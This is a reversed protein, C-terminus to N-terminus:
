RNFCLDVRLHQLTGAMFDCLQAQQSNWTLMYDPPRYHVLVLASKTHISKDQTKRMCWRGTSTPRIESEREHKRRGKKNLATLLFANVWEDGCRCSWPSWWVLHCGLEAGAGPSMRHNWNSGAYQPGRRAEDEGMMATENIMLGIFSPKISHPAVLVMWYIRTIIWAELTYSCLTQTHTHTGLTHTNTESKTIPTSPSTLVCSTWTCHRKLTSDIIVHTCVDFRLAQKSKNCKIAVFVKAGGGEGKKQRLKRKGIWGGVGGVCQSGGYRGRVGRGGRKGKRWLIAYLLVRPPHHLKSQRNDFAIMVARKQPIHFHNGLHLVWTM